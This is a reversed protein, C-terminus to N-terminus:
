EQFVQIKVEKEVLDTFKGKYRTAKVLHNDVWHYNGGRPKGMLLSHFKFGHKNLWTETVERHEETRSTFFCIMHGQDYWKNLTALADPFPECTAMREPEENPVDETITGDIDILYNKVGKPLVPSVKEGAEVKDHLLKEVDKKKM